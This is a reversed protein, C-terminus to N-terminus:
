KGTMCWPDSNRDNQFEGNKSAVVRQVPSPFARAVHLLALGSAVCPEGIQIQIPSNNAPAITATM